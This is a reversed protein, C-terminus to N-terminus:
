ISSGAPAGTDVVSGGLQGHGIAQSPTNYESLWDFYPSSTITSYFGNLDSQNPVTSDWFVTWVSVNALVPGGLYALHAGSPASTTLLAGQTLGPHKPMLHVNSTGIANYGNGEAEGTLRTTGPACGAALIGMSGMAAVVALSARMTRM